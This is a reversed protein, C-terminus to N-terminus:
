SKWQSKHSQCGICPTYRSFRKELQIGGRCTPFNIWLWKKEYSADPPTAGVPTDWGQDSPGCQSTDGYHSKKKRNWETRASGRLCGGAWRERKKHDWISNMRKCPEFIGGGDGEACTIGLTKFFFPKENGMHTHTHTQKKNQIKSIIKIWDQSFFLNGILKIAIKKM